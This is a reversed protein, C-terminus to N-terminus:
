KSKATFDDQMKGGEDSDPEIGMKDMYAFVDNMTKFETGGGGYQNTGGRGPKDEEDWGKENVFASVVQEPTLPKMTDDAVKKGDRKFIYGDDTKEVDYYNKFITTADAKNLSGPLDNPMWQSIVTDVRFNTLEQNVNTMEIEHQKDKTAMTTRVTELDTELELIKASPEKNLDTQLKEKFKTLFLDGDKGDYDMGQKLKQEKVWMELGAKKADEYGGQNEDLVNKKLETKFEEFKDPTFMKVEKLELEKEEDSKLADTLVQVEIGAREALARVTKEPLM